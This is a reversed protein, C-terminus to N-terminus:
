NDKPIEQTKTLDQNILKNYKDKIIPIYKFVKHCFESLVLHTAEIDKELKIVNKDSYTINEKYFMHSLHNYSDNPKHKEVKEELISKDKKLKFINNIDLSAKNLLCYIETFENEDEILEKGKNILEDLNSIGSYIIFEYKEEIYPTLHISSEKHKIHFIKSYTQYEFLDEFFKNIKDYDKM